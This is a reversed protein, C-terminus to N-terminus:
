LVKLSFASRRPRDTATLAALAPTVQLTNKSWVRCTSTGRLSVDLEVLLGRIEKWRCGRRDPGRDFLVQAIQSEVEKVM